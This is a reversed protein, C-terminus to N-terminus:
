LLPTIINLTQIFFRYSRKHESLPRKTYLHSLHFDHEFKKTLEKNFERSKILAMTQQDSFFARFDLNTSGVFSIEDDFLFAKFHSFTNNLTYIKAGADYLEQTWYKSVNLLYQKDGKGPLLLRVDIGSRASSALSKILEVPPVFYPTALWIRKQASNILNLILDLHMPTPHNPGSSVVQMLDHRGTTKPKAIGLSPEQDILLKKTYFLWDSVFIKELGQLADGEIKIMSDNWIGFKPSLNIYEDSLNIGGLFGVEGDISIDKRHDRYNMTWNIFPLKVPGFPVVQAGAEKLRRKMESTFKGYCGFFDYLFYVRVGADLREKLVLELNRYLEGDNVIYINLLIYNKAKSMERLVTPWAINGNPLLDIQTNKYILDAQQNLSMMFARKYEPIDKDIIPLTTQKMEKMIPRERFDSFNKYRYDRTTKYHYTRGFFLYSGLGIIPMFIIFIAWRIRTEVRRHPNFLVVFAWIISLIEVGLLTWLFTPSLLVSLLTIAIIYASFLFILSFLAVIHKKM